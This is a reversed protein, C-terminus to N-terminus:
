TQVLHTALGAWDGASTVGIVYADIDLAGFRYVRVERLQTELVRVLARFRRVQEQEAPAHWPQATTATLFFERVSAVTFPRGPPQGTARAVAAPTPPGRLDPFHLVQFPHDAETVYFLGAAARELERVVARSRAQASLTAPPSGLVLVPVLIRLPCPFM